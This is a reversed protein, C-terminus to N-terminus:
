EFTVNQTGPIKPPQHASLLDQPILSSSKLHHNNKNKKKPNLGVSASFPLRFGPPAGGGSGALLDEIDEM